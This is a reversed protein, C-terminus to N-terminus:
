ISKARRTKRNKVNKLYEVKYEKNLGKRNRHM